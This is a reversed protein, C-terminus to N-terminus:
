NAMRRWQADRRAEAAARRPHHDAWWGAAWLGGAILLFAFLAYGLITKM